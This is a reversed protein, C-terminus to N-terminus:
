KPTLSDKQFSIGLRLRAETDELKQLMEDGAIESSRLKDDAFQAGQRAHQAQGLLAELRALETSSVDQAQDQNEDAHATSSPLAPKEVHASMRTDRQM